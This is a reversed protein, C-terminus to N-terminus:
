VGLIADLAKLFSTKTLLSEKKIIEYAPKSIRVYKGKMDAPKGSLRKKTTTEM